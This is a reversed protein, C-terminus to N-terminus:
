RLIQCGMDAVVGVLAETTKMTGDMLWVWVWVEGRAAPRRRRSRTM